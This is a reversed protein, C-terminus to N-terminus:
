KKLGFPKPFLKSLNTKLTKGGTNALIIKLKPNFESMFQRCAGCPTSLKSAGTVILLEKFNKHGESVAKVFAVREACIALGFSANEINSGTIIKGGDTLLAAGVKFGSYPAYARSRAKLAERLLNYEEKAM